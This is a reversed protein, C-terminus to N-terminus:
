KVKYTHKDTANILLTERTDTKCTIVETLLNRVRVSINMDTEQGGCALKFNLEVSLPNVYYQEADEGEGTAKLCKDNISIDMDVVLDSLMNGEAVASAQSSSIYLKHESSDYTIIRETTVASAGDAGATEATLYNNNENVSGTYIVIDEGAEVIVLSKAEMLVETIQNRVIQFENQIDIEENESKFLNTGQVLMFSIMLLVISSVAITVLLEILSFGKNDMLKEMEFFDRSIKRDSEM